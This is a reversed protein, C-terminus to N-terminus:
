QKIWVDDGQQPRTSHDTARWKVRARLPKGPKLWLTFRGTRLPYGMTESTEYFRGQLTTVGNKVGQYVLDIRGASGNYTTTYTGHVGDIRVTGWAQGDWDGSVAQLARSRADASAVGPSLLLIVLLLLGGIRQM